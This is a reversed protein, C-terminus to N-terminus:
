DIVSSVKKRSRGRGHPLPTEIKSKNEELAVGEIIKKKDAEIQSIKAAFEQHKHKDDLSFAKLFKNRNKYFELANEEATKLNNEKLIVMNILFGLGFGFLAFIIVFITNNSFSLGGLILLLAFISFGILLALSLFLTMKLAEIKTRSVVLKELVVKEFEEREKIIKEKEKDKKDIKNQTTKNM